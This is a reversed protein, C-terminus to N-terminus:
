GPKVERCRELGVLSHGRFLCEVAYDGGPSEARMLVYSGWQALRTLRPSAAFRESRALLWARQPESVKIACEPCDAPIQGTTLLAAFGRRYPPSADYCFSLQEAVVRCHIWAGNDFDAVVFITNAAGLEVEGILLSYHASMQERVGAIANYNVGREQSLAFLDGPYTRGTRIAEHVLRPGVRLPSNVFSDALLGVGFVLPLPLLLLFWARGSMRGDADTEAGIGELRYGQLLGLVALLLVIFFGAVMLRSQAASSFPYVPLGWSRYDALWVTLSRGEYPLHGIVLTMLGALGLWILGGALARGFWAALWGGLGGLLLLALCGLLLSPYLLRLHSLGLLIADPAWVGLALALGICLGSRLGLRLSLRWQAAHDPLLM